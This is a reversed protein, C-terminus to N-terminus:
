SYSKVSSGLLGQFFHARLGDVLVPGEVEGGADGLRETWAAEDGELLGLQRELVALTWPSFGSSWALSVVLPM